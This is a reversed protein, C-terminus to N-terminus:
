KKGKKGKGKEGSKGGKGKGGKEGSKGGKGKGGKEGSKGGKGGGAIVDVLAEIGNGIGGGVALICYIVNSLPAIDVHRYM